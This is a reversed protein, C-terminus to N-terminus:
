DVALVVGAAAFAGAGAGDIATQMATVVYDLVPRTTTVTTWRCGRSPLHTLPVTALCEYLVTTKGFGAPASLVTLASQSAASLREALAPPSGKPRRSPICYKSELLAAGGGVV